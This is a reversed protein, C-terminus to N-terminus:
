GIWLSHWSWYYSYGIRCIEENDEVKNKIEGEWGGGIHIEWVWGMSEWLKTELILVM